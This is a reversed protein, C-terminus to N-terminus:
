DNIKTIYNKKSYQRDNLKDNDGNENYNSLLHIHGHYIVIKFKDNSINESEPM